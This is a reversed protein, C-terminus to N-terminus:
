NPYYIYHTQKNDCNADTYEVLLKIKQFQKKQLLLEQAVEHKLVKYYGSNTDGVITDKTKFLEQNEFYLYHLTSSQMLVIKQNATFRHQQHAEVYHKFPNQWVSWQKNEQLYSVYVKKNVQPTPAFLAWGQNFLPNIYVSSKQKLSAPVINDPLVYLLTFLVHITLFLVFVSIIFLRFIKM